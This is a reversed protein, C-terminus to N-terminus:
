QKYDVKALYNQKHILQLRVHELRELIVLWGESGNKLWVDSGDKLWPSTLAGDYHPNRFFFYFKTM